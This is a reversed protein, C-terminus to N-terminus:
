LNHVFFSSGSYTYSLRFRLLWYQQDADAPSKNLIEMLVREAVEINEFRSEISLRAQRKLSGDPM